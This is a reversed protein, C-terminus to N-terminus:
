DGQSFSFTGLTLLRHAPTSEGPILGFTTAESTTRPIAASGAHEAADLAPDLLVEPVLEVCDAAFGAGGRVVVLVWFARILTLGTDPCRVVWKATANV